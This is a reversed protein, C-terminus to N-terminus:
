EAAQAKPQAEDAGLNRLRPAVEDMFLKM